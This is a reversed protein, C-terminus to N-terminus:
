WEEILQTSNLQISNFQSNILSEIPKVVCFMILSGPDNYNCIKAKNLINWIKVKYANIDFIYIYWQLKISFKFSFLLELFINFTIILWVSNLFMACLAGNSYNLGYAIYFHNLSVLCQKHQTLEITFWCQDYYKWWRAGKWERCRSYRAPSIWPVVLFWFCPFCCFLSCFISNGLQSTKM